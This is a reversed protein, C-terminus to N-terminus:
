SKKPRGRSRKMETNQSIKQSLDLKKLLASTSGDDNGQILTKGTSYHIITVGNSNKMRVVEYQNTPPMFSFGHEKLVEFKLIIEKHTKDILDKSKATSNAAM